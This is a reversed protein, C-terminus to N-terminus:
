KYRVGESSSIYSFQVGTRNVFKHISKSAQKAIFIINGNPIVTDNAWYVNLNSEELIERVSSAWSIHLGSDLIKSVIYAKKVLRDDPMNLLRLWYKVVNIKFNILISYRGLESVVGINPSTGKVHLIQKYFDAAVTEIVNFEKTGWIESGYLLIPM